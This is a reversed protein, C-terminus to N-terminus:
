RAIEGVLITGDTSCSGLIPETPHFAVENVTGRHGPLKYLLQATAADWVCATGDASGAGVREGDASWACRLLRQEFNQTAGEYVAACRAADGGAAFPRVDWKRATSDMANSLLHHGDPSTALSTITGAHGKLVLLPEPVSEGGGGNKANRVDWARVVNDLCGSYVCVDDLAWSVATVQYDHPVTLVCGKRRADWLKVTGDDSASALLHPASRSPCCGNVFGEHGSLKKLRQGSEADWVGLTKDASASFVQLSDSSWHVEMVANRHGRLVNYNECEGYVNWLFIDRDASGSLAHHGGNGSFKFSNVASSHGTLKMTPALLGSTRPVPRQAVLQGGSSNKSVVIETRARKPAEAGADQAKRKAAEPM